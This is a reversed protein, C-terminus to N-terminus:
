INGEDDQPFKEPFEALLDNIVSEQVMIFIDYLCPLGENWNRTMLEALKERYQTYFGEKVCIL